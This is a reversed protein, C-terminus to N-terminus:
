YVRGPHGAREVTAIVRAIERAEDHPAVAAVTIRVGPSTQIRCREGALV